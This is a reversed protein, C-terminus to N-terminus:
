KNNETQSFHSADAIELNVFVPQHDSLYIGNRKEPVLTYSSVAVDGTVFVYDIITRKEVPVEGFGHFTGSVEPVSPALLRTDFFKGDALAQRIVESEPSANFDGTIIVPLGNSEAKARELLLKVGERRAVKGVHDLHTNIFFLRKGTNKEKLIAWTAIRECAGDWGKSGAVDPTESLWFYGSKEEELKDSKYFIASYEGEEKGDTRGVGIAAYRPLRAKLDNLQSNLVEQTGLLDADYEKIIEAAVDKRYQWSNLSDGPNDYRINFTMVRLPLPDGACSCLGALLFLSFFYIANKM